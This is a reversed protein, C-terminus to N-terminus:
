KPQRKDPLSLPAVWVREPYSATLIYLRKNTLAILSMCDRYDDPSTCSGLLREPLRITFRRLGPITLGTLFPGPHAMWVVERANAGTFGAGDPTVPSVLRHLRTGCRELYVGTNFTSDTVASLASSGYFTPSVGGPASLPRCVMRSLNPSNLDVVTTANSPDPRVEGTQINQFLNRANCSHYDGNPCSAQQFALWSRGAALLSTSCGGSCLVGPSPSVSHWGGTAPSYLEWAPPQTAPACTFTIWPLDLPELGATGLPHCGARGITTRRGTQDDILTAPTSSGGLGGWTLAYRPGTWLVAAEAVFRFRPSVVSPQRSRVRSSAGATGATMLAAIAATLM